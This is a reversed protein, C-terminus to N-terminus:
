RSPVVRWIQHSADAGIYLAGDAGVALGSPRLGTPKGTLTAFTDVKGTPKGDAFPVFVIRYGAQALPARNWSGHFAIFAGGRYSAPFLSRNYFAIAMPGWHGPFGILPPQKGACNGVAKGDGGYEPATVKKGQLQDYYCYPWGIDSGQHIEAFEEAPLEANLSDSFGWNEGLQDRGHSAAFLKGSAPDTALAVANRLGTAWRVGDSQRQQHKSASFKWIGARTDLETCPQHGPSQKTRDVEQCSNTASGVSVFLSGDPGLALSKTTHNGDVPLGTVVSEPPGAPETQGPKWPWRMVENSTAFYLYGGGWAIGNGGTPGFRHILDAKGDANTDRLVLVGGSGGGVAALIDGNPLAVLHRVIGLQDAFLTACFGDPLALGANDAACAPAPPQGPTPALAALPVLVLLVFITRM